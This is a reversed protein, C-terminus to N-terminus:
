GCRWEGIEKCLFLSFLGLSMYLRFVKRAFHKIIAVGAFPMVLPIIVGSFLFGSFGAGFYPTM